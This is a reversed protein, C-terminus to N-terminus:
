LKSVFTKSDIKINWKFDGNSVIKVGVKVIAIKEGKMVKLTGM